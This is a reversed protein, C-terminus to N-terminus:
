RVADYWDCTTSGSAGAITIDNDGPALGDAGEDWWTSLSDDLYRVCDTVGVKAARDIFTVVLDGGPLDVFKLLKDTTTNTITVDDGATHTITFKPETPANGATPCALTTAHTVTHPDSTEFFYPHHMRYTFAFNRQWASPIASPGFSFDEDCSASLVRVFSDFEVGGRDTPAAHHMVTPGNPGVAELYAMRAQEMTVVTKAQIIGEVVVTKGREDGPYVTEGPRGTSPARNDDADPRDRFGQMKTIKYRPWTGPTHVNMVIGRITHWGHLGPPGEALTLAAIAM